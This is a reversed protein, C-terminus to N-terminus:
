EPSCKGQFHPLNYLFSGWNGPRKNLFSNFLIKDVAQRIETHRLGNTQNLLADVIYLFKCERTPWAQIGGIETFLELFICPVRDTIEFDSLEEANTM